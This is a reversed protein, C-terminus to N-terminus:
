GTEEDVYAKYDGEGMLEDLQSADSVKIKIMWGGGFPDSNVLEPEDGLADNVEVVEGSVPAYLESVAKVSEITGFEDGAALEVGKEPLDVFVIDGLESQAHSSIGITGVEGDVLVWEHSKRYKRDSPAM